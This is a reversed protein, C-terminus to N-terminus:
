SSVPFCASFFQQSSLGTTRALLAAAISSSFVIFQAFSTAARHTGLRARPRLRVADLLLCFFEPFPDLALPAAHEGTGRNLAWRWPPVSGAGRRTGGAAAAGRAPGGGRWRPRLAGPPLTQGRSAPELKSLAARARGQGPHACLRHLVGASAHATRRPAVDAVLGLSRAKGRPAARSVDRRSNRVHRGCALPPAPTM